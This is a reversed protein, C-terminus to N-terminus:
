TSSLNLDKVYNIINDKNIGHLYGYKIIYSIVIIASRGCGAICHVCVHRDNEDIERHLISVGEIIKELSVPSFNPTEIIEQEIERERWDDKRVPNGFINPELEYLEVM